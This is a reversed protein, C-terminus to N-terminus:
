DDRKVQHEKQWYKYCAPLILLLLFLVIGILISIKANNWKQQAETRKTNDLKLYKLTNNAVGHAKTQNMWHHKLVFSKSFYGFVWPADEQVLEIMKKVIANREKGPAMSRMKEFYKDFTPNHYNAANEGAHKVKGNKSYLLFFFNEPDPYDANWGWMFIQANGTRMKERFRNYHTARIHLVIGLKAFQKRMWNLRSKDDPGATSMTDFNLVLPKGTKPDIGGPYGAKALVAHAQKMTHRTITKGQKSHTFRNIAKEDFGPIGPPLPSHAVQGRGNLFLNIYEEYDVVMSIARRLYKARASDGGVVPDLMNFGLYIISPNISTQLKIGKAQMEQTLHPTGNADVNVAQDFSDSSIASQDYYGQLFKSWRPISEKELSFVVTDIFPLSQGAHKLLGKAKDGPAGESPYREGHFHPNKALVIQHNRNYKTIYYPGSGVPASDFGINKDILVQQQYFQEAEWPTPAFFPMALWYIFQPYKGKILVQYRYRSIAKVGRLSMERLHILKKQKKLSLLEDHFDKLGIIYNSMVPYIPSHLDPAALRKIQYVYDAATVERTGQKAFDSVYDIGKMDQASLHHYTFQKNEKVFAPHPQYNMGKKVDITYLSYAVEDDTATKPLLTGLRNYYRPESVLEASLPVLKYPRKLYHYQLPPELIQAIFSWEDSSYSRAPDLTKPPGSFSTHYVNKGQYKVEHPNNWIAGFAGTCVSWMLLSLLIRRLM